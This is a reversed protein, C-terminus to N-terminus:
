NVMPTSNAKSHSPLLQFQDIQLSTIAQRRLDPHKSTIIHDRKEVISRLRQKHLSKYQM